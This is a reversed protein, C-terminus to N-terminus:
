TSLPRLLSGVFGLMASITKGRQFNKPPSLILLDYAGDLCAHQESTVILDPQYESVHNLLGQRWPGYRAHCEAERADLQAALFALRRHSASELSQADARPGTIPYGGDLVGDPEILHLFDLKALNQRALLLAKEGIRRDLADFHILALIRQYPRIEPM